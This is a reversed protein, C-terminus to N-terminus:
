ITLPWRPWGMNCNGRELRETESLGKQNNGGIVMRNFLIYGLVVTTIDKFPLFILTPILNKM